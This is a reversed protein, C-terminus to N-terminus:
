SGRHAVVASCTASIARLESTWARQKPELVPPAGGRLRELEQAVTSADPRAQRERSLTALILAAVRDPLETAISRPDPPNKVLRAAAVAYPSEGDFPLKGTVLEFLMVGLAYVDSRGDVPQGEVQEPAMYAPTGVVSDFTAQADNLARAIGFDTLVVRRDALMVNEPKLDRHVVGVSHAAGLGLCAEHAIRLVEGLPLERTAALAVSEGVILEMTLFRVGEHVGLDFTRAVNLHTVRRALKVERRFRALADPMASLEAKLVKLAVDEDLERDRARYVAGMGGQGLLSLLEYRSALMAGAPFPGLTMTAAFSPDAM